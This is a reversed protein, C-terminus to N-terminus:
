SVIGFVVVEERKRKINSDTCLALFCNMVCCNCTQVKTVIFQRFADHVSRYGDGYHLAIGYLILLKNGDTNNHTHVIDVVAFM